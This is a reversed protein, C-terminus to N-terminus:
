LSLTYQMRQLHERRDAFADLKRLLQKFPKTNQQPNQRRAAAASSFGLRECCLESLGMAADALDPSTDTHNFMEAKAEIKIRLQLGKEDHKKRTCLEQIVAPALGKIQGTRMAQKASYWIETVRNAYRESCPTPDFASVPKDTPGGSFNIRCVSKSWMIDILDGFPGGGGTSDFGANRPMVNNQECLLKWWKIVQQSRTLERNSVDDHFILYEDYQLTKLGEHNVGFTGFYATTRDGGVTFSPDLFCVRTLNNDRWVAPEHAKCGIIEVETYVQEIVGTPCWFGRFMRWFSASKGGHMEIERDITEQTDMWTLREDGETIRPNKITDFHICAGRETEWSEDDVTISEWGGKPTVFKGFPDFYSLPNAIGIFQFYSCGRNLNFFAAETIAESLETLDDACFVIREQHIGIIRGVAEKEKKREGTILSIGAMDGKVANGDRDVYRIISLSDILKGPMGIKELPTWYQVIKGWAKKKSVSVTISTVLCITNAPDCLFQIILWIAGFESKGAGGSGAFGLYNYKCAGQLMRDAWSNWVFKVQANPDDEPWLAKAISKFHWAPGIDGQRRPMRGAMKERFCALELHLAKTGNKWWVGHRSFYGERGEGIYYPPDGAM